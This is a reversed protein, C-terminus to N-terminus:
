LLIFYIVFLVVTSFPFMLESGMWIQMFPQYLCILCTAFVCTVWIYIFYMNSFDLFNKDVSESAVSNGVTPRISNPVLYLISHVSNMVYFYNSYMAISTLGIFMSIVISDLSNRSTSCFNQLAIGKVHQKIAKKDEISLKGYCYLDPYLKKAYYGAWANEIITFVPYVIVYLYYNKTLLLLVIQSLNIGVSLFSNINSLIDQRQYAQILAKKHAFFIYSIVTNGLYILFLIYININEPVEGKIISRLFPCAAIGLFLIAVGIYLFIKRYVSLLARLKDCDNEAVPKYMSYILASGFGLESLNLVMLISTFLSSLGLFNSGLSYILVTRTAFPLSIQLIKNLVGAIINRKGNKSRSDM